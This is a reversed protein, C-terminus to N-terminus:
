YNVTLDSFYVQEETRAASFNRVSTIKQVLWDINLSQERSLRAGKEVRIIGANDRIEGRFVDSTESFILDFLTETIEQTGSKVLNQNLASLGAANSSLGGMNREGNFNRYLARSVRQNMYLTADMHFGVLHTNPAIDQIRNSFGINKVGLSEAYRIGYETAQYFFIVDHGSQVLDDVARRTDDYSDSLAWNLQVDVRSNPLELVGQAFASVIGQANYFNNDAVIGVKNTDTNFAAILGSINAPQYLLPQFSSLNRGTNNGGFNVYNTQDFENRAVINVATSFHNSAAVIMTCGERKLRQVAEEFQQVLVNEIYCTSVQFTREIDKRAIEFINNLTNGTVSGSYIFGVKVPVPQTPDRTTEMTMLYGSDDSVIRSSEGVMETVYLIPGGNQDTFNTTEGAFNTYVIPVGNPLTQIQVANGEADTYPIDNGDADKEFVVAGDEGTAIPSGGDGECATLFFAASLVFVLFINRM